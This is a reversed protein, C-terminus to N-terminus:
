SSIGRIPWGNTGQCVRRMTVKGLISLTFLVSVAGVIVRAPKKFSGKIKDNSVLYALVVFGLLAAVGLTFALVADIM